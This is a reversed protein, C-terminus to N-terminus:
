DCAPVAINEMARTVAYSFYYTYVDRVTKLNLEAKEKDEGSFM